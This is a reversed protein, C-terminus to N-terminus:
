RYLNHKQIYELVAPHLMGSVDQGAALRQRIETSSVDILPTEIIHEQLQHAREQGWLPIFPSFDPRPCGARVMAVIQCQDLLQDIGHWHPLESVADAGILWYLSADDGYQAKFHRITDITFSPSPRQLECDSVQWDPHDAIALDIMALRDSDTAQPFTNKLPSRRVPVFFVSEAPLDRSTHAVVVTHGLHIPDFTGGFLAIRQKMKM